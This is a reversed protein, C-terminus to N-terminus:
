RATDCNIHFVPGLPAALRVDGLRRLRELTWSSSPRDSTQNSFFDSRVFCFGSSGKQHSIRGDFTIQLTVWLAAMSRAFTVLM